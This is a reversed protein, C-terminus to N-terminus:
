HSRTRSEGNLVEDIHEALTRVSPFPTTRARARGCSINNSSLFRNSISGNRLRLGLRVRPAVRQRGEDPDNQDAKDGANDRSKEQRPCIVQV